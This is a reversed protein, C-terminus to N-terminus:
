PKLAFSDLLKAGEQTAPTLQYIRGNGSFFYYCNPAIM